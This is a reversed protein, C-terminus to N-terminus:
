HKLLRHLIATMKNTYEDIAESNVALPADMTQKSASAHREWAAHKREGDEEWKTPPRYKSRDSSTPTQTQSKSAWTAFSRMIRDVANGVEDAVLVFWYAFYDYFYQKLPRYPKAMKLLEDLQECCDLFKRAGIVSREGWNREKPKMELVEITKQPKALIKLTDELGYDDYSGAELFWLFADMDDDTEFYNVLSLFRAFLRQPEGDGNALVEGDDATIRQYLLKPLRLPYHKTYYKRVSADSLNLEIRKRLHQPLSEDIYGVLSAIELIGYYALLDDFEDRQWTEDDTIQEEDHHRLLWALDIKSKGARVRELLKDAKHAGTRSFFVTTLDDLNTTSTAVM